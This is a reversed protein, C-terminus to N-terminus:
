QEIHVIQLISTLIFNKYHVLKKKNKTQIWSQKLIEKIGPLLAITHQLLNKNKVKYNTLWKTLYFQLIPTILLQWLVIIIVGRIILEVVKSYLLEIKFFPLYSIILLTIILLSGVIKYAFKNKSKTSKIIVSSEINSFNQLPVNPKNKAAYYKNIIKVNLLGGLIGVVLYCFLYVSVFIFSYHIPKITFILTIKNFFVDISVWFNKGFIITLVILHQFASYLLSFLTLVFAAAKMNKKTLFFLEGLLGQVAVALYATPPTQPSLIFKIAIVLLTAKIIEFQKNTNTKGLAILTICISAILSLFLGAFPIKLGHMIGGAFAESFAWLATIRHSVNTKYFQQITLNM